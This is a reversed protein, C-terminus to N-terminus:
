GRSFPRHHASGLRDLMSTLVAIVEDAAVEEAARLEASLNGGGDCAPSDLSAPAGRAEDPADHSQNPADRGVEATGQPEDVTDQPAAPADQPAAPADQPEDVTGQPAAPADQPAAPADQPAAATGQPEDVTDQPAAPADQPAAATGQPEDVTDQPAAPADQPAAPADQPAAPADQPAAPADQWHNAADRPEESAPMVPEPVAPLHPEPPAEPAAAPEDPGSPLAAQVVNSQPAAFTHPEELPPPAPPAALGPTGGFAPDGHTTPESLPRATAAFDFVPEARRRRFLRAFLGRRSALLSWPAHAERAALDFDFPAPAAELREHADPPVVDVPPAQAAAHAHTDPAGHEILQPRAEDHAAGNEEADALADDGVPTPEGSQPTAIAPQMSEGPDDAGGQPLLEGPEEADAEITTAPAQAPEPAPDSAAPPLTPANPVADGLPSSSASGAAVSGGAGSAGDLEREVTLTVKTGWGSPEILVTGSAAGADWEIREEPVLGTIRVDGLEGLHRALAEADSLETWLEPPSKVLTRQAESSIM